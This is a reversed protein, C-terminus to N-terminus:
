CQRGDYRADPAPPPPEAVPEQRWIHRCVTCRVKVPGDRFISADVSFRTACNPCSLIM